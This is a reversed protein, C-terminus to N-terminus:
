QKVNALFEVVREHNKQKAVDACSWGEPTRKSVDAGLQVLLELAELKNYSASWHAPTWGSACRGSVAAGGRDVLLRMVGCHNEKAARILTTFGFIDEQRYDANAGADLLRQVEAENGTHAAQSLASDLELQEEETRAPMDAATLHARTPRIFARDGRCSVLEPRTGINRGSAIPKEIQM